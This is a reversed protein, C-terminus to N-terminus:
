EYVGNRKNYTFTKDNEALFINLDIIYEKLNNLWKRELNIAETETAFHRVLLLVPSHGYEQITKLYSKSTGIKYIGLNKFYILYLTTM